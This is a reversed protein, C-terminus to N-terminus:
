ADQDAKELILAQASIKQQAAESDDFAQALGIYRGNLIYCADVRGRADIKKGCKADPLGKPSEISEFGDDAEIRLFEDLLGQAAKDDKARFVTTDWMGTHDAGAEKLAEHIAQQDKYFHSLGRPGYSAMAVGGMNNDDEELPVTYILIKDQDILTEPRESDGLQAKTPQGVFQATLPEQVELSAAITDLAWQKEGQPVEAFSYTMYDGRPVFSFVWEVPEKGEEEFTDSVVMAEPRGPLEEPQSPTFFEAEEGAEKEPAGEGTRMYHTASAAASKASESSGFRLVGTMLTKKPDDISATPTEGGGVFGYLLDNNKIIEAAASGLGAGILNRGSRITHTVMTTRESLAPDIEYPLAVYEALRQAEYDLINSDDTQGFEPQPETPYDGTDLASPDLPASESDSSGAASDDADGGLMSCGSIAVAACLAMSLPLMRTRRM